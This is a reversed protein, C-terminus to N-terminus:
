DRDIDVDLIKGNTADIKYEFEVVSGTQADVVEFEIEYVYKGREFELKVENFTANAEEVGAHALAISKATDKSIKDQGQHTGNGGHWGDHEFSIIAGTVAHVEFEHEVGNVTLEVEYVYTGHDFEFKVKEWVVVDEENLALEQLVIAEVDDITLYEVGGHNPFKQTIEDVEKKYIEGNMANIDYEYKIGNVIFEVEYLYLGDDFDCKVKLREVEQGDLLGMDAYAIQVAEDKSIYEDSACPPAPVEDKNIPRDNIEISVVEHDKSITISYVVGDITVEVVFNGSEDNTVTSGETEVGEAGVSALAVRTLEANRESVLANTNGCAVAVFAVAICVVAVISIGFIKKRKTM